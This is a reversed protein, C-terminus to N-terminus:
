TQQQRSADNPSVCLNPRLRLLPSMLAFNAARWRQVSFENRVPSSDQGAGSAGEGARRHCVSCHARRSAAPMPRRLSLPPLGDTKCPASKLAGTDLALPRTEGRHTRVAGGTGCRSSVRFGARGSTAAHETPFLKTITFAKALVLRQTLWEEKGCASAGRVENRLRPKPLPPLGIKRSPRLSAATRKAGNISRRQRPLSPTPGRRCL